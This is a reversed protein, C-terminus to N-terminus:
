NSYCLYNLLGNVNLEVAIKEWHKEKNKRALEIITKKEDLTWIKQNV